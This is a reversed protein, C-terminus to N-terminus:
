RELDLFTYHHNESEGDVKNVIKKFQSYDPFYKDGPLDTHVITLYLKQARDITQKFISAGGSIFVEELEIEKAKELAKDISSVIFTKPIAVSYNKDRTAIIHNREPIPRGSKQYYKLLSDFTARGMIITHHLTKEKFRILDERIHWPIRDGIGIVRTDSLACIISIIPKNM